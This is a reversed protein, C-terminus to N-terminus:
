AAEAYVFFAANTIAGYQTPFTSPITLGSTSSKGGGPGVGATAQTLLTTAAPTWGQLTVVTSATMMIGAYHIGSYTTTFSTAAGAAVNAIALSKLTSAAWATTTQNATTALLNRASDCLCFWWNTPTSAATTGSIFVLHGINQGAPIYMPVLTMQGSTLAAETATGVVAPPVSTAITTTQTGPYSAYLAAGTVILGSASFVTWGDNDYQAWGGAPIVLTCLQNAAATGGQYLSVTQPSAGTNYLNIFGVLATASGGPNYMSTVSAAVQGQALVQYGTAVPPSASTMLLGSITFNVTTASTAIGYLQQSVGLALM